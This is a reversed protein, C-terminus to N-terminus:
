LSFPIPHPVLRVDASITTVLAIPRPVVTGFLLEYCNMAAIKDIDIQM